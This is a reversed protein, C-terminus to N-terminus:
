CIEDENEKDIFCCGFVFYPHRVDLYITGTNGSEDFYLALM